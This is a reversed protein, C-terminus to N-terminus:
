SGSIRRVAVYFLEKASFPHFRHVLICIVFVFELFPFLFSDNLPNWIFLQFPFTVLEWVMWYYLSIVQSCVYLWHKTSWAFYFRWQQILLYWMHKGEFQSLCFPDHCNLNKHHSLEFLIFTNLCLSFKKPFSMYSREVQLLLLTDDPFRNQFFAIWQLSISTCLYSHSMLLRHLM